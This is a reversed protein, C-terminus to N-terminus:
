VPPEANDCREEREYDQVTSEAVHIYRKIEEFRKESMYEASRHLFNKGDDPRWYDWLSPEKTVGMLLNPRVM